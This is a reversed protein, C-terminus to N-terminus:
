RRCINTCNERSKICLLQDLTSGALTECQYFKGWCDGACGRKQKEWSIMNSQKLARAKVCQGYNSLIKLLCHLLNVQNDELCKNEAEEFIEICETPLKISNNKYPSCSGHRGFSLFLVLIAMVASLRTAM